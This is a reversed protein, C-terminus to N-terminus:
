QQLTYKLAKIADEKTEWVSIFRGKHCFIAGEIGSVRKLDAELLGAWKSPLPLRVGMRDESTPPIARLNWHGGSPMIVFKASHTVGGLEFFLDLWPIGKDFVLCDTSKKMSEEVLTKCSQVYQYREWLRELHGLAFDLAEFFAKDEMESPPDYSIPRYNAIIHSYTCYGPLQPDKGNDHADVGEIMSGRFLKYEKPQIISQEKLYLLIMGASSLDGQYEAQHHDFMKKTPDYIGGVDCIYECQNLLKRDRTRIIKDKDILSFLLLLACATIEDAHFSGDHTGFSKSIKNEVM